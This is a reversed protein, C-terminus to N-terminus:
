GEAASSCDVAAQALAAVRAEFDAEAMDSLRGWRGRNTRSIGVDDDKRPRGRKALEGRARAEKLM